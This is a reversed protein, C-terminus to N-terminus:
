SGLHKRLEMRAKEVNQVIERPSKGMIMAVDDSHLGELAFLVFPERVENPLSAIAKQLEDKAEEQALLQEPDVSHEDRILDEIRLVEDPQYFTLEEDDWRSPTDAREEVHVEERAVRLELFRSNLERRAIQFMWQDLPLAEPRDMVRSNVELFVEDVLARAQLLGIPVDEILARHLLDRRIYNEIKDLNQNIANELIRTKYTRSETSESVPEKKWLSERNLQSKFRKIRRLLEDFARLVSTTPNNEMREVRIQKQPMTMVLVAHFQKGRPLRELSIHLDLDRSTFTPLIKEVKNAHVDILRKLAETVKLHRFQFKLNM